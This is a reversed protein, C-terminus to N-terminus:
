LQRNLFDQLIEACNYIIRDDSIRIWDGAFPKYNENIFNTYEFINFEVVEYIKDTIEQNDMGSVWVEDELIKKIENKM